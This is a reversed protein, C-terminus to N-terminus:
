PIRMTDIVIGIAAEDDGVTMSVRFLSGCNRERARSDDDILSTLLKFVTMM